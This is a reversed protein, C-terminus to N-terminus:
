GWFLILEETSCATLSCFILSAVVVIDKIGLIFSTILSYLMIMGDPKLFVTPFLECLINACQIKCLILYDDQSFQYKKELFPLSFM